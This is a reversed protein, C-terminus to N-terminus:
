NCAIESTMPIRLRARERTANTSKTTIIMFEGAITVRLNWGREPAFSLDFHTCIGRKFRTDEPGM